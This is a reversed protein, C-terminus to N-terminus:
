DPILFQAAKLVFCKFRALCPSACAQRSRPAILGGQDKKTSKEIL